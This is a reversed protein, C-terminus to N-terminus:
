VSLSTHQCTSLPPCPNKSVKFFKAYFYKEVCFSAFFIKQDLQLFIELFGQGGRDVQQFTTRVTYLILPILHVPTTSLPPELGRDVGTWGQGSKEGGFICNQTPFFTGM